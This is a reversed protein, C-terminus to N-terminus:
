DKAKEGWKAVRHLAQLARMLDDERIIIIHESGCIVGDRISINNLAFESSLVSFIGPIGIVDEQYILSIEGLKYDYGLIDKKNFLGEVLGMNSQDIIIKIWQSVELIRLVEGKSFDIKNYLKLLSNRVSMAKKFLVSAMRTRSSVKANAIAKYRQKINEKTEEQSEYRRIASIVADLSCSLNLSKLIYKALARTNIFGRSLGRRISVDQNIFNTVTFHINTM